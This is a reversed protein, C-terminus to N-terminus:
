FLLMIGWLNFLCISKYGKLIGFLEISILLLLLENKYRYLFIELMLSVVLGIM